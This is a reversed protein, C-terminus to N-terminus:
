LRDDQLNHLKITPITGLRIGSSALLLTVVRMREDAVDLIKSIEEHNYARDKNVKVQEPLFKNIKHSNLIVDNIKYFAKVPNLYNLIASYSKGENRLSIIFEIIKSEVKRPNNSL